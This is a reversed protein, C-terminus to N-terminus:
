VLCTIHYKMYANSSSLGYIAGGGGSAEILRRRNWM